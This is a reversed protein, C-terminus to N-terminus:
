KDVNYSIRIHGQGIAYQAYHLKGDKNVARLSKVGNIRAIAM